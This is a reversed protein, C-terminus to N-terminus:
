GLPGPPQEREDERFTIRSQGYYNWFFACITAIVKAALYNLSAIEVLLWIIVVNVLLCSISIAAFTAFQHLYDRTHDHFTLFKNLRYSVLIGASYSLVAAPVYWIGLSECFYYLLAIDVLSSVAGVFFFWVLHERGFATILDSVGSGQRRFGAARM